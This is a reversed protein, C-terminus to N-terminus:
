GNLATRSLAVDTLGLRAKIGARASELLEDSLQRDAISRSLSVAGVMASLISASLKEPDEYGAEALWVAVTAVLAKVGEDYIARFKKSQRPLESSLASIPCGNAPFIATTPRSTSISTPPLRM